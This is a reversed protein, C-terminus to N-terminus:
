PVQQLKRLYCRRHIYMQHVGSFGEKKDEASGMKFINPANIGLLDDIYRRIRSLEEILMIAMQEKQKAESHRSSSGLCRRVGAPRHLIDALQTLFQLEYTFLYLNALIVGFNAGMPIGVM